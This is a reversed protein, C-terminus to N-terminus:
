AAAATLREPRQSSCVGRRERGPRHAGELGHYEAFRRLVIDIDISIGSLPSSRRSSRWAVARENAILVRLNETERHSM